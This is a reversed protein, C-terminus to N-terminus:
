KPGWSFSTDFVPLAAAAELFARVRESEKIGPESEVASSVDLGSAKAAAAAVPLCVASLGGALAFPHHAALPAALSWNWAAANGGPLRGRGCEVLFRTGEPFLAAEAQLAPGATRLVKVVSWGEELLRGAIEPPEAGHLQITTLGAEKAFERIGALPMDVFVGVRAVRKPLGDFLRFAQAGSVARPSPPYFVAGLAGAGLRVCLEADVRRTIGCIKVHPLFPIM